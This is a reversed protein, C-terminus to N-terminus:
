SCSVVNISSGPVEMNLVADKKYYQHYTKNFNKKNSLDSENVFLSTIEPACLRKSLFSVSINESQSSKNVVFLNVGIDNSMSYIYLDENWYLTPHQQSLFHSTVLSYAEGLSSLSNDSQFIDRKTDADTTTIWRTSWAALKTLHPKKLLELSLNFFVIAHGFDGSKWEGKWSATNYEAIVLEIDTGNLARSIPNVKRTLYQPKSKLYENYGDNFNAYVSMSIFDLGNVSKVFEKTWKANNVSVGIKITPDVEKLKIILKNSLNILSVIKDKHKWNENGLEWYFIKKASHKKVYKLWAVAHEIVEQEKNLDLIAEEIPLVFFGSLQTNNILILYDDLEYLKNNNAHQQYAKRTAYASAKQFPSLSFRYFDAMQGGPYRVWHAGSSSLAEILPFFESTRNDDHDRLYNMNIGFPSDSFNNIVEVDNILKSSSNAFTAFVILVCLLLKNLM